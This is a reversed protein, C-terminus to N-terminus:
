KAGGPPPPLGGAPPKAKVIKPAEVPGYLAVSFAISHSVAANDEAEVKWDPNFNITTLLRQLVLDNKLAERFKTMEAVESGAVHCKMTLGYPPAIKSEPDNKKVEGQVSAVNLIRIDDIWIKPHAHVVSWVTNIAEWWEVDRQTVAKLDKVRDELQKKESTLTTFEAVAPALGALEKKADEIDNEVSLIAVWMFALGAIVGGAVAVTAYNLLQRGIPTSEAKRKDAPLLNIRIM